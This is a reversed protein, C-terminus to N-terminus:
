RVRRVEGEITDDAVRRLAEIFRHVRVPPMSEMVPQTQGGLTQGGPQKPMGPPLLGAPQQPAGLMPQQPMGAVGEEDPPLEPFLMDLVQNVDNVGLANLAQTILLRQSEPNNQPLFEGLTRLAEFHPFLDKVIIPPFDIDVYYDVPEDKDTPQERTSFTVPKIPAQMAGPQGPQQGTGQSANFPQAGDKQGPRPVPPSAPLFGAETMPLGRGDVPVSQPTDLVRESRLAKDSFKSEDDREGIRGAEHATDLMFQLLDEIIDTTWQQWSEYTKLLPLEMATASALNANAEDGFYHNPIGGMGAGAMMRLIREDDNGKGVDTKMWEMDSNENSVYTGGAANPPNQEYGLSYPTSLTSKLRNVEANIDTQSANKRKKKWAISAAARTLTTRDEMFSKHAHLWDIAAALESQGFKGKGRRAIYVLGDEIKSPQGMGRKKGKRPEDDDDTNKWYRYWLTQAEQKDEWEGEGKFNYRRKPKRVKVWKPVKANEPDMIIDDVYMPDLWGLQLSGNEKDPFLVLFQAGDTFAGVLFDAMAQLGTFVERNVPDNWFEDVLRGVLNKNAATLTVGRGITYNVLLAAAQKALPNRKILNRAKKITDKREQTSLYGSETRDDVSVSEWHLDEIARQVSLAAERFEARPGANAPAAKGQQITLGMTFSKGLTQGLGRPEDGM